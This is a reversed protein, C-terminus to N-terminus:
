VVYDNGLRKALNNRLQQTEKIEELLKMMQERDSGVERLQKTIEKMVSFRCSM